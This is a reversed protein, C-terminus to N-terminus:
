RQEDVSYFRAWIHQLPMEKGAAGFVDPKDCLFRTDVPLMVHCSRHDSLLHFLRMTRIRCLDVTLFDDVCRKPKSTM